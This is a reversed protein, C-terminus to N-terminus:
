DPPPILLEVQLASLQAPKRARVLVERVQEGAHRLDIWWAAPPLAQAVRDAWEVAVIGRDDELMEDLGLAALEDAASLRYADIHYLKLRGLYERVLVFTPSVVPEEPPVGLGDAIGKVLQTKGAGLEGCLAM